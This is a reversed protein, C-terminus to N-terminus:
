EASAALNGTINTAFNRQLPVNSIVLTRGTNDTSGPLRNYFTATVDVTRQGSGLLFYGMWIWYYGPKLNIDNSAAGGRKGTSKSGSAIGTLLDLQSYADHSVKVDTYLGDVSTQAEGLNLQGLPRVLNINKNMEAGTVNVDETSYFADSSEDNAPLKSYNVTMTHNRWDLSYGGCTDTMAWFVVKYSTNTALSISVDAKKNEVEQDGEMVYVYKTGEPTTNAQYVAYKVVNALEGYEVAGYGQSPALNDRSIIFNPIGVHFTVRSLGDTPNVPAPEDSSCSALALAALAGLACIYPKM